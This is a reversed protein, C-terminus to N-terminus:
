GLESQIGLGGSNGTKPDDAFRWRFNWGLGSIGIRPRSKRATAEGDGGAADIDSPFAGGLTGGLSVEAM